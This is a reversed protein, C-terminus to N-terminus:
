KVKQVIDPGVRTGEIEGGVLLAVMAAAALACCAIFIFFGKNSPPAARQTRRLKNAPKMEARGEQDTKPVVEKIVDAGM